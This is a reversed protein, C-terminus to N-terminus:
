KRHTLLLLLRLFETTGQIAVLIAAACLTSFVVCAYWNGIATSEALVKAAAGFIVLAVIVAVLARVM